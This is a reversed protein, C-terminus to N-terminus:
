AAQRLRELMQRKEDELKEQDIGFFEALWSQIGRHIPFFHDGWSEYAPNLIGGARADDREWRFELADIDEETAPIRYPEGNTGAEQFKCITYGKDQLWDIFEGVLQSEDSIKSLKDHEPYNSM